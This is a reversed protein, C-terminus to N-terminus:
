KHNEVFWDILSRSISIHNPIEPLNEAGFWGADDNETGDVTIEGGAYEATFAIMMSNPFPWSQSGFYKINKVEIGMEEMVERKVCDELAEGPEVFGAIVSYMKHTFRKAHALLIKSDKVVAVIIAPSINPYSLLGCAPCIKAREDQKFNTEKGCRGCYRHTQDWLLIQYARGALLFLHDDVTGFLSRLDKWCLKSSNEKSDSIQALYCHKGEYLGLYQKRQLSINNEILFDNSPITVKGDDAPVVMIKNNDFVLWLTDKNPEDECLYAPVYKEYISSTIM